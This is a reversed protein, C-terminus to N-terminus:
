LSDMLTNRVHIEYIIKCFKEWIFVVLSLFLNYSIICKNIGM